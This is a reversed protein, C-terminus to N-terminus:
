TVRRKMHVKPTRKNQQRQRCKHSELSVMDVLDLVGVTLRQSASINSRALHLLCDALTKATIGDGM